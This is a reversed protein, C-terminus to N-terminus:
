LLYPKDGKPLNNNTHTSWWRRNYAKLHNVHWQYIGPWIVQNEVQVANEALRAVAGAVIGWHFAPLLVPIDGAATLKSAQGEAWIRGTYDSDSGPYWILQDVESGTTLIKKRHTYYLPRSQSSSWLETKKEASTWDIVDMPEYDFFGASPIRRTEVSLTKGRHVLTGEGTYATYGLGVIDAKDLDQLNGSNANVRTFHFARDNVEVMGEVDYISVIDGTVLGHSAATVVPPTAATIATIDTPGVVTANDILQLMWHLPFMEDSNMLEWYAMNIVGKVMDAMESQLHKVIREVEGQIDGFTLYNAM